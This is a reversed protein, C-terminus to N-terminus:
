CNVLTATQDQWVDPVIFENPELVDIWHLLRDTDYAKGLEHLSNDM